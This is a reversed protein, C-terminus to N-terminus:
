KVEELCESEKTRLCCVYDWEKIWSRRHAYYNSATYKCSSLGKVTGIYKRGEKPTIFLVNYYNNNTDDKKKCSPTIILLILLICVLRTM